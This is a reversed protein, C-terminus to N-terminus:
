PLASKNINHADDNNKFVYRNERSFYHPQSIRRSKNRSRGEHAHSFAQYLLVDNVSNFRQWEDRTTEAGSLGPCMPSRGVALKEFLVNFIQEQLLVSVRATIVEGFHSCSYLLATAMFHYASKNRM